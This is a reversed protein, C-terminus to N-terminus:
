EFGKVKIVWALTSPLQDITLSPVSITLQGNKLSSNITGRYGLLEVRGAKSVHNVVIPKGPWQMCIIYLCDKGRTCYMDDNGTAQGRWPQSAYIAEGNVGLWKGMDLLREQMVVPIQGHADPGVDLLLNGGNAVTRVLLHVLEKSSLYDETTEFRNYGYSNGIGRSEEWPHYAKDGIGEQKHVLNYETTYYGGHLSRTEAGWRDNVVVTNRM